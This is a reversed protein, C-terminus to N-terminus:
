YFGSYFMMGFYENFELFSVTFPLIFTIVYVYSWPSLAYRKMERYNREKINMILLAIVKRLFVMFVLIAGFIMNTIWLKNNHNVTENHKIIENQVAAYFLIM